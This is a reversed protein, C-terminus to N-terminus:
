SKAGPFTHEERGMARGTEGDLFLRRDRHSPLDTTGMSLLQCVRFLSLSLSLSLCLLRASGERPSRCPAATTEARGAVHSSLRESVQEPWEGKGKPSGAGGGSVCAWRWTGSSFLM